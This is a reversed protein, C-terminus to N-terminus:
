KGKGNEGEVVDRVSEFTKIVDKTEDDMKVGLHNDVISTAMAWSISAIHNVEAPTLEKKGKSPTVVNYSSWIEGDIVVMYEFIEDDIRRLYIMSGKYSIAKLVTIRGSTKIEKTKM